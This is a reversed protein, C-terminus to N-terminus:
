RLYLQAQSTFTGSTALSGPFAEIRLSTADLLQVLLLGQQAGPPDFPAGPGLLPIAVVGSAPTITSFEPTNAPVAYLGTAGLGGISIRPYQPSFVDRGFTLKRMGIAQDGGRGSIEVPLDEAFWNGALTGAVDYAIRGDLESGSRRVKAYLASRVPEAFYKLPGDATLHDRGYRAPNVFGLDLSARLVSFDFALNGNTTGLPTGAAVTMGPSLGSAPEFPGIWYQLGPEIRIDIRTGGSQTTMNLITGTAPVFMPVKVYPGREPNYTIYIHGTPQTHGWPAMAGQATIYYIAAPEIPAVTFPFPTSVTTTAATTTTSSPATISASAGGTSGGPSSSGCAALLLCLAGAATARLRTV